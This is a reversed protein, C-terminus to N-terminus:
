ENEKLKLPSVGPERSFMAASELDCEFKHMPTDDDVRALKVQGSYSGDLYVPDSVTYDITLTHGDESVSYRETVSKQESSPVDAGSGLVITAAALGWRSAPYNESTVVFSVGDFFGQVTGFIGNPETAVSEENLPVTRIIDYLQHHLTIVDDTVDIDFLYPGHFVAPLSISECTNAPSLKPDFSNWASLGRENLPLPSGKKVPSLPFRWRGDLREIGDASLGRASLTERNSIPKSNRYVQDDSAIFWDSHIYKFEQKRHPNGIVLISDGPKFTDRDMGMRRLGPASISEVEWRVINGHPENNEDVLVGDLVITAHPSRLKYEVITGQVSIMENQDFHTSVSHHASSQMSFLSVFLLAISYLDAVKM